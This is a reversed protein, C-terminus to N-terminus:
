VEEVEIVLAGDLSLSQITVDSGRVVLSSTASISIESPTPLRARLLSICPAFSPALSILPGLEVAVGRFSRHTGHPVSAGLLRLCCAHMKYVAMEATSASHGPVGSASLRAATLIDNKCPFYGFEAPYRTWGVRQSPLVQAM